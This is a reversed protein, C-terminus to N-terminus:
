INLFAKVLGQCLVDTDVTNQADMMGSSACCCNLMSWLQQQFATNASCECVEAISSALSVACEEREKAPSGTTNAQIGASEKKVTVSRSCSGLLALTRRFLATYQEPNRDQRWRIFFLTACPLANSSSVRHVLLCPLPNDGAACSGCTIAGRESLCALLAANLTGFAPSCARLLKNHEEDVAVVVFVSEGAGKAGGEVLVTGVGAENDTDLWRECTLALAQLKRDFILAQHRAQAVASGAPPHPVGFPSARSFLPNSTLLSALNWSAGLRLLGTATSHHPLGTIHLGCSVCQLALAAPAEEFVFTPIERGSSGCSVSASARVVTTGDVLATAEVTAGLNKLAAVVGELVCSRVVGASREPAVVLDCTGNENWCITDVCEALEPISREFFWAWLVDEM